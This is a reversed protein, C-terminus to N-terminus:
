QQRALRTDRVEEVIFQRPLLSVESVSESKEERGHAPPVCHQPPVGRILVSILVTLTRILPHGSKSSDRQLAEGREGGPLEGATM